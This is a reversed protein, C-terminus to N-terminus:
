YSGFETQFQITFRVLNSVPEFSKNLVRVDFSQPLVQNMYVPLDLSTQLTVAANDLLIPIYNFAVNNDLIKSSSIVPIDLYLIQESLATAALDMEVRINKITLTQIPVELSINLTQVNSSIDLTLIGGGKSPRDTM